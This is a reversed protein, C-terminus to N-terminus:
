SVAKQIYAEAEKLAQSYKATPISPNLSSQWKFVSLANKGKSADLPFSESPLVTSYDGAKRLAKARLVSM